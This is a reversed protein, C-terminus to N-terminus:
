KGMEELVRRIEESCADRNWDKPSSGYVGGSLAINYDLYKRVREKTNFIMNKLVEENELWDDSEIADDIDGLYLECNINKTNEEALKKADSLPIILVMQFFKAKSILLARHLRVPYKEYIWREVDDRVGNHNSDIGLLTANNVKPDPEPPLRHGNVEWYIELHVPNSLISGVQARLTVNVDKLAMLTHGTIKIADKPTVIWKAQASLDKRTGDAYTGTLSLTTNHDKNLSTTGVRLSLSRLGKGTNDDGRREVRVTVEAPASSLKGDSVSVSYTFRDEGTFGPNPLYRLVPASGQLRGHSPPTLIRYSLMDGDPDSGHLTIQYSGDDQAEVSAGSAVPPRNAPQPNRTESRSESGQGCGQVGILLLVAAVVSVIGVRKM